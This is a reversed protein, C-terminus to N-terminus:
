DTVARKTNKRRKLFERCRCEFVTTPQVVHAAITAAVHIKAKMMASTMGNKESM